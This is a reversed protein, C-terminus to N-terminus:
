LVSTADDETSIEIVITSSSEVEVRLRWQKHTTV